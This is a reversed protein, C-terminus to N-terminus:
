KSFLYFSIRFFQFVQYDSYYEKLWNATRDKPDWLHSAFRCLWVRNHGKVSKRMIENFLRENNNERLNVFHYLTVKKLGTKYYDLPDGAMTPLPMLILDNPKGFLMIYKAATRWDATREYQKVFYYNYLSYGCLLAIMSVLLIRYINKKLKMIGMATLIYYPGSFILFYRPQFLRNNLYFNIIFMIFIPFFLFLSLWAIIQPSKRFELLALAILLSFIFIVPLIIWLHSIIDKGVTVYSTTDFTTFGVSFTYFIKPLEILRLFLPKNMDFPYVNRLSNFLVPIWFIYSLGIIGLSLFWRRLLHKYKKYYCFIYITSTLIIFFAFYHIYISLIITVVWGIWSVLDNKRLLKIFFYFAMLALFVSLTYNKVMQSQYIHLPSIALLFASILGVQENVVIKGLKYIAYVSFIGFCVSFLRLIFESSGVLYLWYRMFIFYLPPLDKNIRIYDFMQSLSPQSITYFAMGEDIGFSFARLHFIRLTTAIM